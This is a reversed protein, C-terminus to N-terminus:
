LPAADLSPPLDGTGEGLGSVASQSLPNPRIELNDRAIENLLAPPEPAPPM